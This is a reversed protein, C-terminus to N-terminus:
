INIIKEYIEELTAAPSGLNSRLEELTGIGLIKGKCMIGIRDSFNEAEKLNHSVFLITKKQEKVLKDKIITKLRKASAPDLSKFPEDLFLIEPNNILSRAILLRQKIGSSCEQFQKELYGEIELLYSLQEIKARAKSGFLNSLAAFFYLNERLTLRWYFSREDLGVLGIVPKIKDEEGSVDYGRVKVKGQTPSILCSLIKILTSKGAGNPGILTFIEAQKIQLSVDDIALVRNKPKAHLIFNYINGVPFFEKTLGSIEIPYYVGM